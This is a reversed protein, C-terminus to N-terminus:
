EEGTATALEAELEAIRGVAEQLAGGSGIEELVAHWRASFDAAREVLEAEPTAPTTLTFRGGSFDYMVVVVSQGEGAEILARLGADRSVAMAALTRIEAPTASDPDTFLRLLLDRFTDPQDRRGLVAEIEWNSGDHKWRVILGRYGKNLVDLDGDYADTADTLKYWRSSMDWARDPAGGEEVWIEVWKGASAVREITHIRKPKEPQDAGPMLEEVAAAAELVVVCGWDNQLVTLVARLVEPKPHRSSLTYTGEVHRLWYNNPEGLAIRDPGGLVLWTGSDGNIIQNLRTALAEFTIEDDFRPDIRFDIRRATM